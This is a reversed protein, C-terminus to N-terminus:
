LMSVYSDCHWRGFCSVQFTALFTSSNGDICLQLLSKSSGHLHLCTIRGRHVIHKNRRRALLIDTASLQTSDLAMLWLPAHLEAYQWLHRAMGRGGFCLQLQLSEPSLLWTSSGGRKWSLLVSSVRVVLAMYVLRSAGNWWLVVSSVGVVPAMYVLLSTSASAVRVVLVVYVLRGVGVFSCSFRSHRHSGHLCSCSEAGRWWIVGLSVRIVLATAMYFTSSYYRWLSCESVSVPGGM